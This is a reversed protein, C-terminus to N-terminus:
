RPVPFDYDFKLSYCQKHSTASLLHTPIISVPGLMRVIGDLVTFINTITSSLCRRLAPRHQAPVCTTLRMCEDVNEHALEALQEASM